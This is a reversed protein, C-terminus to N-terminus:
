GERMYKERLLTLTDTLSVGDERSSRELVLAPVGVSRAASIKEAFGGAKGSDKTVLAAISFQRLLAENLEKSFPGQMAIVHSQPIKLQQCIQLSEIAPLVRPYLRSQYDKVRTFEQLAKSGTTLLVNGTMQNLREVIQDIHSFCECGPQIERERLVRLYPTKTDQCAGQLNQSVEVAYPHTADIVLDAPQGQLLQRMESENLRGSHINRCLQPPLVEKGYDTAVFVTYEVPLSDLAQAITRGESTGAFLLVRKM